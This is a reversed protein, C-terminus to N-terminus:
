FTKDRKFYSGAEVGGGCNDSSRAPEDDMVARTAGFGGANDSRSMKDDVLHEGNAAASNVRCHPVAGHGHDATKGCVDNHSTYRLTAGQTRDRQAVGRTFLEQITTRELWIMSRM